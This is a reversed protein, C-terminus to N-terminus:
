GAIKGLAWGAACMGFVSTVTVVSGYGHCNLDGNVSRAAVRTQNNLGGQAGDKDMDIEHQAIPPQVPEASFVCPVGIKGQTAAGHERRLRYRLQALLPDHTVKSLDGIDVRHALRKGGAAGVAILKVKSKLAWAAMATKARLQDCADIVALRNPDFGSGSSLIQPWNEAAVFEEVCDVQCDPNILAVRERMAQVKSQGVTDDLAHVQRNINSEVIHDFDILTLRAIGSRAAAEAAWSGVGGVGVVVIHAARIRKAGASGYLRAVAAFRRELDASGFDADATMPLALIQAVHSM